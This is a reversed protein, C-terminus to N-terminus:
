QVFRENLHLVVDDMGQYVKVIDVVRNVRAQKVVQGPLQHRM